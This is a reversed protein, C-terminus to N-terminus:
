GRAPPHAPGSGARVPVVPRAPAKSLGGPRGGGAKVPVWWVRGGPGVKAKWRGIVYYGEVLTRQGADTMAAAVTAATADGSRLRGAAVRRAAARDGSLRRFYEYIGLLTFAWARPSKADLVSPLAREFM